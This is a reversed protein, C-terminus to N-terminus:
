GNAGHEFRASKALNVAKQYKKSYEEQMYFTLMWKSKPRNPALWYEEDDYEQYDGNDNVDLYNNQHKDYTNKAYVFITDDLILGYKHVNKYCPDFPEGDFASRDDYELMEYSKYQPIGNLLVCKKKSEICLRRLKYMAQNYDFMDHKLPKVEYYGEHLPHHVYFDPLYWSGDSLVYGEPEYEWQWGMADFFVAWRAELRSRFKYGKYSTEIPKIDLTAEMMAGACTKEM